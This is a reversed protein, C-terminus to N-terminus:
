WGKKTPEWWSGLKQGHYGVFFGMHCKDHSVALVFWSLYGLYVIFPITTTVNVKGSRSIYCALLLVYYVYDRLFRCTSSRKLLREGLRWPVTGNRVYQTPLDAPISRIDGDDSTGCLGDDGANILQMQHPLDGVAPQRYPNVIMWVTPTHPTYEPFFFTMTTHSCVM